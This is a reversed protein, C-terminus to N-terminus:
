RNHGWGGRGGGHDGGRWGGGGNHGGGFSQQPASQVSSQSRSQFRGGGSNGFSGRNWNHNGFNGFRQTQFNQGGQIGQRNWGGGALFAPAASGSANPRVCAEPGGDIELLLVM